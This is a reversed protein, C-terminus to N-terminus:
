IAYNLFVKNVTGRCKVTAISYCFLPLFTQTCITFNTKWKGNQKSTRMATFDWHITPKNSEFLVIRSTTNTTFFKFCIAISVSYFKCVTDCALYPDKTFSVNM